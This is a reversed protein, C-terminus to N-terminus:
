LLQYGPLTLFEAFHGDLILQDFLQVAETFRGNEFGQTGVEAKINELEEAKLQEYLEVNVKRGDNLIGKPHRIWQWLQARSIEATAADEMLNHIPAAGKGSLWSEIYQIGVNINIRVGEETITGDPIELLDKATI